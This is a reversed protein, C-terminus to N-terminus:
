RRLAPDQRYFRKMLDYLAPHQSLMAQAKEFFCETAVAFFEASNTAGYPDLLTKRGSSRCLKEYENTMVKVWDAFLVPCRIPPTGDVIGDLMDLKHAFEHYILNRGDKPDYLGHKAADWALQVPGGDHAQGLVALSRHVYGQGHEVRRVTPWVIIERVNRYYDHEIELLLLCAGGAITVRIEDTLELGDTSYFRKEALFVMVCSCLERRQWRDLQGYLTINRELIEEWAAPFPQERIKRRRRRTLFGFLM